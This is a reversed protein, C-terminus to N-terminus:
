PRVATYEYIAFRMPRVPKDHDFAVVFRQAAASMRYVKNNITCSIRGASTREAGPVRRLALAIPCRDTRGREGNDIDDQTIEIQMLAKM